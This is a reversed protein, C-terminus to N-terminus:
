SNDRPRWSRGRGAKKPKRLLPRSPQSGDSEGGETDPVPHEAVAGAPATANRREARTRREMREARSTLPEAGSAAANQARARAREPRAPQDPLPLQESRAAPASPSAQAAPASATGSPKPLRSRVARKAAKRVPATEEESATEQQAPATRTQQSPRQARAPSAVVSPVTGTSPRGPAPRAPEPEPERREAAPRAPVAEESTPRQAPPEAPANEKPQETRAPATVQASANERPEAPESATEEPARQERTASPAPASLEAAYQEASPRESPSAVPAGEERASRESASQEPASEEAAAKEPAPASATPRASESPGTVTERSVQEEAALQEFASPRPEAEEAASPEPASRDAGTGAPEADASSGSVAEESVSPASSSPRTTSEEVAPRGIVSGDSRTDPRTSVESAAGFRATDDPEAESWLAGPREPVSPAAEASETESRDTDAKGAAPADTEWFDTNWVDADWFGEESADAAKAKRIGKTRRPKAAAEARKQDKEGVAADVADVSETSETSETSEATEVPENAEATEVATQEGLAGLFPEAFSGAEELAVDPVTEAAAEPSPVRDGTEELAPSSHRYARVADMVEEATAGPWSCHFVPNLPPSTETILGDEEIVCSGGLPWRGLVVATIGQQQGHLLLGSLATEHESTPSTVLALPTHPREGPEEVIQHLERQLVTLAEEMTGVMRVPECPHARLLDRGRDGVLRAAEAETLLVRVADGNLRDLANVILRRAAGAAGPGTIGLGPVHDLEVTVREDIEDGPTPRPPPATLALRRPARPLRPLSLSVGPMRVGRKGLLYGGALGAFAVAGTVAGDPIEVVLVNEGDGAAEAAAAAAAEVPDDEEVPAATEGAGAGPDPTEAAMVRSQLSTPQPVVTYAVEARRQAAAGGERPQESGVGEVEMEPAEEGLVEDLHDAVAQARRESLEQNTQANGSPDTHGTIRVPTETDGYSDIMEAVPALDDRMQETLEASGVGFGSVTRVREVPQASPAEEPAPPADADQQGDAERDEQTTVTDAFATAPAVAVTGVAAAAVVQLPGLPRLRRPMGRLRAFTEVVLGAAYLGWLAWLVTILLATFVGPPLRWGRLHAAAVAWSDPLEPWPLHWLLLYPIGLLIAAALLLASLRRIQTM